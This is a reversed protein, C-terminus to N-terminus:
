GKGTIIIERLSNDAEIETLAADLEKLSEMDLSNLADPRNLVIRAVGESKELIIRSYAM